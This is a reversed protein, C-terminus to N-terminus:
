VYERYGVDIPKAGGSKTPMMSFFIFLLIHMKFTARSQSEVRLEGSVEDRKPKLKTKPGIRTSEVQSSEGMAQLEFLLWLGSWVM